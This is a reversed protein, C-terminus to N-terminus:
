IPLGAAKETPSSSDDDQATVEQNLHATEPDPTARVLNRHLLIRLCLGVNAAFFGAFFPYAFQDGETTHNNWALVLVGALLGGTIVSMVAAGRRAGPLVLDNAYMTVTAQIRANLVEAAPSGPPLSQFIAQDSAILARVKAKGKRASAGGAMLAVLVGLVSGFLTIM